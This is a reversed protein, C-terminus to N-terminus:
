FEDCAHMMICEGAADDSVKRSRRRETISTCDTGSRRSEDLSPDSSIRATSSATCTSIVVNPTKFLLTYRCFTETLLFFFSLQCGNSLCQYYKLGGCRPALCQVQREETWRGELTQCSHLNSLPMELWTPANSCLQLKPREDEWDKSDHGLQTKRSTPLSVYVPTNHV